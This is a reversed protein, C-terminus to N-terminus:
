QEEVETGGASPSLRRAVAVREIGHPDAAFAVPGYGKARKFLAGVQSSQGEGFECLLIGGPKLYALAERFLRQHISLGFPGGDFAERPEQELLGASAGDLKATSIYPPNCVVMDVRGQLDDDAFAAFLDGNRVTVRSSLDLRKVNADAAAAAAVSLDAAWVRCSPAHVALAVALNGSGCCMDIVAPGPVQLLEGLHTLAQRALLETEARPRLVHPPVVIDLDMFRSLVESHQQMPRRASPSTSRYSVLQGLNTRVGPRTSPVMGCCPVSTEIVSRGITIARVTKTLRMWM